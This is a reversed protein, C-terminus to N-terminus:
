ANKIVKLLVSLGIKNPFKNSSWVKIIEFKDKPFLLELDEDAFSYLDCPNEMAGSLTLVIFGNAKTVRYWEDITQKVDFAHDLSNSYVMGFKNEWDKPLKNFDYGFCNTGVGTVRGDLDIGYIISDKFDDLGRYHDYYGGKFAYYENGNRIGMCCISDVKGTITYVDKMLRIFSQLNVRFTKGGWKKNTRKLQNKIYENYDTINYRRM